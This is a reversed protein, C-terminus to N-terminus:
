IGLSRSVEQLAVLERATGLLGPQIPIETEQLVSWPLHLVWAVAGNPICVKETNSQCLLLTHCLPAFSVSHHCEHPPLVVHHASDCWHLSSPVIRCLNFPSVTMCKPCRLDEDKQVFHYLSFMISVAVNSGKCLSKSRVGNWKGQNWAVGTELTM